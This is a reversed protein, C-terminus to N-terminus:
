APKPEILRAVPRGAIIHEDILEPCDRPTVHNYLAARARRPAPTALSRRMMTPPPSLQEGILVNPGRTCRGFCSQWGLEVRDELRRACLADRM